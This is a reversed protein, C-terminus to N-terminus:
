TPTQYVAVSIEASRQYRSYGAPDADAADRSISLLSDGGPGLHAGVTKRSRGTAGVRNGTMLATKAVEAGLGRSTGTTFWVKSSKSASVGAEM